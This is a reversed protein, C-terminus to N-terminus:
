PKCDRHPKESLKLTVSVIGLIYRVGFGIRDTMLSGEEFMGKQGEFMWCMEGGFMCREESCGACREASCVDRSRVDWVDRRRVYMGGGFMWCMEGGFM